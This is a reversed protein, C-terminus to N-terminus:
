RAAKKRPKKAEARDKEAAEVEKMACRTCLDQDETAWDCSEGTEEVCQSCDEETCGCVRCTGRIGGAASHKKTAKKPKPRGPKASGEPKPKAVPAHEDLIKKLDIGFAKARAPVNRSASWPNAIEDHLIWFAGHRLLDEASTGRPLYKEVPKASEGFDRLRDLVINALLGTANTPAKRVREAFADLIAPRAKVFRAREEEDRQQERKRREDERRRREMLGDEARGGGVAVAQKARRAKEKQEKAWHVLCKEKAACVRFAEGRGPGVVIVGMRSHECPKSGHEGDARKWSTRCLTKGARAEPPVQYNATIALVKAEEETAAELVEATEPFVMQDVAEVDFRVREDIWAQFERVTRVKVREPEEVEGAGGEVLDDRFLVYEEEFLARNDPDLARAQDEPKLRALLVAHGPTIRDALFAKRADETLACLKLRGYVYAVSKGLKAAIKEVPYGHKEHLLRYGEAEEMAHVDERQLNDVVLLEIAERDDLERVIAPVEALGAAVAARLRRAGALVEYGKGNKRVLLPNLIGKEKVSATLEELRAADFRKRNAPHERLDAVPLTEIKM